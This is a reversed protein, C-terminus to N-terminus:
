TTARSRDLVGGRPMGKIQPPSSCARGSQSDNATAFPPTAGPVGVDLEYRGPATKRIREQAQLRVLAWAHHNVFKRWAQDERGLECRAALQERMRDSDSVGRRLLEVTAQMLSPIDLM